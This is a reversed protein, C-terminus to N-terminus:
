AKSETNFASWCETCCGPYEDAAGDDWSATQHCVECIFVPNDESGPELCTDCVKPAAISCAATCSTTTGCWPCRHAHPGTM